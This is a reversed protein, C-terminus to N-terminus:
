EGRRGFLVDLTKQGSDRGVTIARFAEAVPTVAEPMVNQKGFREPLRGASFDVQVDVIPLARSEVFYVRAGGATQWHQIVPAAQVLPTVALAAWAARSLLTRLFSSLKMPLRETVAPRRKRAARLM